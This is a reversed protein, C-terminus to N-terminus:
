LNIKSNDCNIPVSFINSSTFVFNTFEHFQINLDAKLLVIEHNIFLESQKGIFM